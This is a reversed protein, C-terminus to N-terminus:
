RLLEHVKYLDEKKDRPLKLADYIDRYILKNGDNGICVGGIGQDLLQVAYSGMRLASVREM